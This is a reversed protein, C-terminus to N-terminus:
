SDRRKRRTLVSPSAPLSKLTPLRLGTKMATLRLSCTALLTLTLKAELGVGAAGLALFLLGGLLAATAYFDSKLIAPVEMVLLDRAVGGGTATLAAMMVVTLPGAHLAEAKAAGIATFVGLGIADAIMVWDWHLAIHRKGLVALPAGAICILIYTEERLASPPTAGLLVDRLIGGGVGTATALVLLGLIDLEHKIARFAGSLAFALTGLLDLINLIM